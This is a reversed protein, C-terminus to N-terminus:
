LRQWEDESESNSHQDGGSTTETTYDEITQIKIGAIKKKQQKSHKGPDTNKDRDAQQLTEKKKDKKTEKSQTRPWLQLLLEQKQKNEELLQKATIEDDNTLSINPSHNELIHLIIAEPAKKVIAFHLPTSGDSNRQTNINCGKKLLIDIIDTRAQPFRYQIQAIAEFFIARYLILDAGKLIQDESNTDLMQFIKEAARTQIAIDFAQPRVRAKLILLHHFATYDREWLAEELPTHGDREKNVAKDSVNNLFVFQLRALGSLHRSIAVKQRFELPPDAVLPKYKKTMTLKEPDSMAFCSGISLFFLVITKM